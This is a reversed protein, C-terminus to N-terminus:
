NPSKLVKYPTTNIIQNYKILILEKVNRSFIRVTLLSEFTDVGAQSLSDRDLVKLQFRLDGGKDSKLEKLEPDASEDWIIKAGDFKGAQEINLSALDFYQPKLNVEVVANKIIVNGVNKYKINFSVLEGPLVNLIQEKGATFVLSVDPKVVLVEQSRSIQPYFQKFQDVVGLSAKFLKKDGAQGSLKGSISIIGDEGAALTLLSFMDHLKATTVPDSKKFEFGAPYELQIRLKELDKNTTNKYKIKLNLEEGDLLSEPLIFEFSLNAETLKVEGQSVKQFLSSFNAPRYTLVAELTKIENAEGLIQARFVKEGSALKDLRGVSYSDLRNGDETVLAFGVPYRFSLNVEELVVKEKNQWSVKFEFTEGNVAEQPLEIKLDINEGSFNGNKGVFIYWVSVLVIFLVLSLLGLWTIQRKTLKFRQWGPKNLIKQKYSPPLLM